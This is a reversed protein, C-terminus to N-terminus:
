WLEGKLCKKCLANGANTCMRYDQKREWNYKTWHAVSELPNRWRFAVTMEMNIEIINIEHCRRKVRTDASGNKQKVGM